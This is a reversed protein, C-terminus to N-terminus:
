IHFGIGLAFIHAAFIDTELYAGEEITKSGSDLVIQDLIFKVARPNPTLEIKEVKYNESM